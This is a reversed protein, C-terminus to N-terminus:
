WGGGAGDGSRCCRSTRDVRPGAGRRPSGAHKRFRLASGRVVLPARTASRSRAPRSTPASASGRTATETAVRTRGTAAVTGTPAHHNWRWPSRARAACGRRRPANRCRARSPCGASVTRRSDNRDAEPAPGSGPVGGLFKADHAEATAAGLPVAVHLSEGGDNSPVRRARGGEAGSGGAATRKPDEDTMFVGGGGCSTTPATRVRGRWARGAGTTADGRAHLSSGGDRM